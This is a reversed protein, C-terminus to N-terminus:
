VPQPVHRSPMEFRRIRFGLGILMVGFTLAYLGILWALALFGAQPLIIMLVGFIVSSVGALALWGNRFRISGVIELAGIFISWAAVISYLAIASIGPRFFTLVGAALGAIGEFVLLIRHREDGSFVAALALIGDVFAWAGFVLVVALLGRAPRAILLIGFLIALIGRFALASWRRGVPPEDITTGCTPCARM